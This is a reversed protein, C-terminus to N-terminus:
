GGVGGGGAEELEGVGSKQAPTGGVLGEAESGLHTGLGRGLSGGALEFGVKGEGVAGGGGGGGDGGPESLQLACGFAGEGGWEFADCDSGGGAGCQGELKGAGREGEEGGEGFDGKGVGLVWGVAEAGIADACGIGEAGSDEGGGVGRERLGEGEGGQGVGGGAEEFEFAVLDIHDQVVERGFEDLPGLLLAVGGECDGAGGVSIEAEIELIFGQGVELDALSEGEGEIARKDAM